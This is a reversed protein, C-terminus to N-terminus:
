AQPLRRARRRERILVWMISGLVSLGIAIELFLSYNLRYSGSGPDYVTCFLRVKELFGSVGTYRTQNGTLLEKMPTVLLPLDFAEGYIQRYVTADPGILTAQTIHDFGKPTAIWTFGLEQTMAAITNEDASAFEWDPLDVGFQRAFAGMAAPTDFPQNFGITLVHFANTGLTSQAKRIAQALYKTAVPCAQFCGTYVFSVLLPKGRYGALRLKRGDSRTLPFDDVTRGIAAESLKLVRERDLGDASSGVAESVPAARAWQASQASILLLLLALRLAREYGPM